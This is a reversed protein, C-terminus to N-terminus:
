KQSSMWKGSSFVMAILSISISLAVNGRMCVTWVNATFMRIMGYLGQRVQILQGNSSYELFFRALFFFAKSFIYHSQKNSMAFLLIACSVMPLLLLDWVFGIALGIPKNFADKVENLKLALGFIIFVLIDLVLSFNRSFVDELLTVIILPNRNVMLELYASSREWFSNSATIEVSIKSLGVGVAVATFSGNWRSDVIEHLPIIKTVQVYDPHSSVVRIVADLEVLRTTNLNKLYLNFDTEDGLSFSHFAYYFDARWEAPSQGNALHNSVLFLFGVFYVISQALNKNAM